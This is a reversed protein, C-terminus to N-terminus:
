KKKATSPSATMARAVLRAHFHIEVSKAIVVRLESCIKVAKTAKEMEVEVQAQKIRGM